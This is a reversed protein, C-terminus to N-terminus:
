AIPTARVPRRHSEAFSWTRKAGAQSEMTGEHPAVIPDDIEVVRVLQGGDALGLAFVEPDQRARLRDVLGSEGGQEAAQRRHTQIDALPSSSGDSVRLRDFRPRSAGTVAAGVRFIM